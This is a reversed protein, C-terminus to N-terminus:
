EVKRGSLERDLLFMCEKSNGALEIDSILKNFLEEEEIQEDVFWNLFSTVSFDGLENAAKYINNINETNEQESALAHKAVELISSFESRPKELGSVTYSENKRLLFDKFKNAHELEEVYQMYMFHGFGDFGISHCYNAMSLYQFSVSFEYNMQNNIMEVLKKNM